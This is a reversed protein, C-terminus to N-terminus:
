TNFAKRSRCLCLLGWINKESLKQACQVKWVQPVTFFTFFCFNNMDVVITIVAQILYTYTHTYTHVHIYLSLKQWCCFIFSTMICGVKSQHKTASLKSWSHSAKNSCNCCNCDTLFTPHCEMGNRKVVYLIMNSFHRYCFSLRAWM